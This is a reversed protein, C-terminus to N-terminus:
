LFLHQQDGEFLWLIVTSYDSIVEMQMIKNM